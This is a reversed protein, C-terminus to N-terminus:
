NLFGRKRLLGDIEPEKGRFKVYQVMGEGNGVEALCHKRFKAALEQNFLDGSEKFASFADSDLVGAWMYVYYGAAYGSSSIHAFYTSRYRPIIEDILGLNDMSAKEFKNIDINEPNEATHYDLDLISAAIYEVTAFGQNFHSSKEIKAILEDPIPEGTKYHKAYMKLVKPDAAWNEMIQSPLEVFDRPVSGSTREYHGDQFFNHLAHGFEHFFTLTEDWSLLAPADGAPRTFNTVISVLPTIREGDEYKQDIISGCSAGVRKGPRPHNDIYLVGLPTGDDETAEFADVEEHYIPIDDIKKFKIGYLKNAVMFMGERVNELSLYPKLQSEDLDYKDKRVKEAYYWWDWPKLEFDGGERDIIAQMDKVEQKAVEIAPEWVKHLFDYVNEPEKAMNVEIRYDAYNDYGLMKSREDRLVVMEKLVAKNDYENNNNGRHYYAKYIEERLERKPSYTLFPLMSPKQLTFVWSGEEGAKKAEEAAGAIVTEPLGDLDDENDIVLKFNNTEALLNEGFQLSLLSLKENIEKLRTKDEDSLAAGSRVFDNYYKEVVRMQEKDLGEEKRNNYVTEIRKFLDENLAIENRHASMLPSLERAIRQKVSDTNASLQRYFVGAVKGLLEGSKDYAVITNEFSPEEPNNAIAEIETKQEEMGAKFAPLYHEDEIVDYPPVDYPTNYESMFPNEKMDNTENTCAFSALAIFLLFTLKRM